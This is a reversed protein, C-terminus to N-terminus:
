IQAIDVQTLLMEEDNEDIVNVVSLVREIIEILEKKSTAVLHLRALTQDLTGKKSVYDGVFHNQTVNIVGDYNKVEDLGIVSKIKGVNVLLVLNAAWHTGFNCQRSIVSGNPLMKGTLAFRILMQIQDVLGFHKFFIYGQGGTVRFAPDYFMIRGDKVFAQITLIGNQINLEKFLECMKSHITRFYLDTHKSPYVLATTITGLGKQERNVHRDSISTVYVEGDVFTYTVSIDDCVMYEEVLITKSASADLAKKEAQEYEGKNYCVTMGKSSCNDVPKVFVPYNFEAADYVGEPSPKYERITPIGHRELARKLGKKNGFISVTQQNAYSPMGVRRCLEEYAPVLIDACGVMIGDIGERDVVQQLADIDFCNVLLPHDAYRKAVSNELHDAVYTIVGLEKATTVFPVTQSTAGLILIKKGKLDNACVKKVWSEVSIYEVRNM